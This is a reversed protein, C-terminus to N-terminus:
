LEAKAREIALLHRSANANDFVALALQSVFVLALGVTAAALGFVVGAPLGFLSPLALVEPMGAVGASGLATGVGVALWGLWNAGQAMLTGARYREKFSFEPEVPMEVPLSRSQQPRALVMPLNPPGRRMQAEAARQQQLLRQFSDRAEFAEGAAGHHEVIHRYFQLAFELRGEAEARRAADLIQGPTFQPPTSMATLSQGRPELTTPRDHEQGRDNGCEGAIAM